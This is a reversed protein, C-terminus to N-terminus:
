RSKSCIYKYGYPELYNVGMGCSVYEAYKTPCRGINSFGKKYFIIGTDGCSLYDPMKERDVYHTIVEPHEEM